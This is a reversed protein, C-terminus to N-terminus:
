VKQIEDSDHVADEEVVDEIHTNLLIAAPVLPTSIPHFKPNVEEGGEVKGLCM